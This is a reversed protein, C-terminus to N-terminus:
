RGERRLKRKAACTPKQGIQQGTPRARDGSQFGRWNQGEPQCGCNGERCGLSPRGITWQLARVPVRIQWRIVRMQAVKGHATRAVCAAVVAM